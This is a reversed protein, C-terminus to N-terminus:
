KITFELHRICFGDEDKKPTFVLMYKGQDLNKIEEEQVEKRSFGKTGLLTIQFSSKSEGHFDIAVSAKETKQGAQFVEITAKIEKCESQARATGFVAVFAIILYKNFLSKSLM